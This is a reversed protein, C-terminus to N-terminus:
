FWREWFFQLERLFIQRNQAATHTSHHPVALRAHLAHVRSHKKIEMRAYYLGWVALPLFVVSLVYGVAIGITPGITLRRNLLNAVSGGGILLVLFINYILCFDWLGPWHHFFHPHAAEADLNFVEALALFLAISVGTVNFILHGLKM